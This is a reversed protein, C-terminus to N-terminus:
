GHLHRPDSLSASKPLPYDDPSSFPSDTKITNPLSLDQHPVEELLDAVVGANTKGDIRANYELIIRHQLVPTAIAAVDEFSANIRGNM